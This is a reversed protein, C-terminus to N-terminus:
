NEAPSKLPSPVLIQDVNKTPPPYYFGASTKLPPVLKQVAKRTLVEVEGWTMFESCDRLFCKSSELQSAHWLIYKGFPM